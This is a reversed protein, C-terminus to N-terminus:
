IKLQISEFKEDAMEERIKSYDSYIVREKIELAPITTLEELEEIEAPRSLQKSENTLTNEQFNTDRRTTLKPKRDAATMTSVNPPKKRSALFEEYTRPLM